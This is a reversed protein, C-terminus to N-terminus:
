LMALHLAQLFLYMYTRYEIYMYMYTHRGSAVTSYRYYKRAGYMGYRYMRIIYM